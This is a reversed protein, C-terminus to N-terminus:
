TYLFIFFNVPNVNFPSTNRSDQHSLSLRNESGSKLCNEDFDNKFFVLSPRRDSKVALFQLYAV